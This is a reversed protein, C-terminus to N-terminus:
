RPQTTVDQVNKDRAASEKDPPSEAQKKLISEIRARVQPQKESELADQLAKAAEQPYSRALRGLAEAAAIRIGINEDQLCKELAPIMEKPPTKLSEFARIAGRRVRVDSDRAAEILAPAAKAAKDGLGRIVGVALLRNEAAEDKVAAILHDMFLDAKDRYRM